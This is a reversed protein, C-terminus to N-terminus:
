RLTWNAGRYIGKVYGLLPGINFSQISAIISEILMGFLLWLLSILDVSSKKHKKYLVIFERLKRSYRPELVARNLPSMYHALRAKPNIYFANGFYNHARMSFDIDELMHFNNSVDFKVVDFVPRRFASIGGSLYNSPILKDNLKETYGYVGVRRDFFIGRHFFHFFLVYGNSLKPLNTVVGCCGMMEPREMFSAQMNLFYDVELVVDDELFCIIDGTTKSIAVRKADVLGKIKPDYIYNLSLPNNNANLLNVIERQGIINDSQDIILLEDPLRTQILVSKVSKILDEVRNKTPIVASIKM